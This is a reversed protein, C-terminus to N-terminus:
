EGDGVLAFDSDAMKGTWQSKVRKGDAVDFRGGGIAAAKSWIRLGSVALGTRPIMSFSHCGHCSGACLDFARSRRRKVVASQRRDSLFNQRPLAQREVVADREIAGRINKGDAPQGIVDAFLHM